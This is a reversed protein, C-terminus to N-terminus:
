NNHTYQNIPSPHMMTLDIPIISILQFSAADQNIPIPYMIKPSNFSSTDKGHTYQYIQIPHIKNSNHQNIPIPYM